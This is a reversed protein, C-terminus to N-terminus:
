KLVSKPNNDKGGDRSTESQQDTALTEAGPSASNARLRKDTEFSPTLFLYILLCIAAASILIPFFAWLSEDAETPAIDTANPAPLDTPHANRSM